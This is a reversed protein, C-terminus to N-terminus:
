IPVRLGTEDRKQRGFETQLLLAGDFVPGDACVRLGIPDLICSGCIGFGCKIYRELSAQAQIKRKVGRGVVEYLMPEPGCTLISDFNEKELTPELLETVMGEHGASGDETAVHVKAGAGRAEKIFLLESKTKAGVLFTCRKKAKSLAKAAYILPAVGYGGGVILFSKGNLSFGNGFPGRVLLTGGSKLKHLEATTPGKKAVSIRIFGNGSDSVSMPVEEQGPSWVMVFQGPRPPNTGPDKLYFSKVSPSEAIVKKIKAARFKFDEYSPVGKGTGGSRPTSLEGRM